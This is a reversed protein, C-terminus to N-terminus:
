FEDEEAPNHDRAKKNKEIREVLAELRQYTEFRSQLMYAILEEFQNFDDRTLHDKFLKGDFALDVISKADARFAKEELQM